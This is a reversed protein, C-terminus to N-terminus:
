KKFASSIDSLMNDIKLTKEFNETTKSGTIENKIKDIEKDIEKVKVQLKNLRELIDM